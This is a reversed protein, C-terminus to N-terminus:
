FGERDGTVPMNSYHVHVIRWGQSTRLLMQNERGKTHLPSGDQKFKAIFDWYFEVYATDGYAFVNPKHITLARESFLGITNQYFNEWVEAWTLEHGRPHILSIHPNNAWVQEALSRDLTEISLRYKEVTLLVEDM